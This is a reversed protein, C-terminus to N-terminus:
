RLSFFFKVSDSTSTRAPVSKPLRELELELVKTYVVFNRKHCGRPAYFIFVTYITSLVYLFIHYYNTM